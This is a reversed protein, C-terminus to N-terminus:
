RPASLTAEGHYHAPHTWRTGQNGPSKPSDASLRNRMKSNGWRGPWHIWPQKDLERWEIADLRDGRGNAFDQRHWGRTFYHAHTGRAVYIVPRGRDLECDAFARREGARHQTISVQEPHMGERDSCGIQVMEWDGEHKWRIFRTRNYVYWFWFQHWFLGGDQKVRHYGVIAGGPDPKGTPLIMRGGDAPLADLRLPAGGPLHGAREVTEVERPWYRERSDLQLIPTVM